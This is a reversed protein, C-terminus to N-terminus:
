NTMDVDIGKDKLAKQLKAPFAENGMLGLGASLSDGLVVLKIPKLTEAAFVPNATMLSATMLGLMLALIQLGRSLGGEVRSASTGYSRVMSLRMSDEGSAPMAGSVIAM